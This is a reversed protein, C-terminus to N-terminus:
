RVKFFYTRRNTSFLAADINDPLGAFVDGIPKPFGAAIRNM